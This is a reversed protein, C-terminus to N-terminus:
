RTGSSGSCSVRIYFNLLVHIPIYHLLGHPVFYILGSASLYDSIPEILYSSLGSWTRGPYQPYKVVEREYNEVYRAVEIESVEVTKIKFNYPSVM